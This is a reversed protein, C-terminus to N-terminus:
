DMEYKMILRGIERICTEIDDCDYKSIPDYEMLAKLRYKDMYNFRVSNM